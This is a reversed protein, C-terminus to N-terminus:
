QCTEFCWQCTQENVKCFQNCQGARLGNGPGVDCAEDDATNALQDAGNADIFGDGCYEVKCSSSCGDGSIM